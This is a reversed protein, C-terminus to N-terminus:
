SVPAPACPTPQYMVSVDLAREWWKEPNVGTEDLARPGLVEEAEGLTGAAGSGGIAPDTSLFREEPGSRAAACVRVPEPPATEETARAQAWASTASLVAAGCVGAAIWPRM